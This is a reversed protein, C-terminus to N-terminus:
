RPLGELGPDIEVGLSNLVFSVLHYQGVVMCLEILQQEDLRAALRKWTGDSIRADAHLEDAACVLADDDDSWGGDVRPTALRAIEESTLGAALGIPVHQAWEYDADCNWGTRLILLERERPVLAGRYLLRGGFAAWPKLLTPHRALTSMINIDPGDPDVRFGRLLEETAEDREDHPLPPIRPEPSM